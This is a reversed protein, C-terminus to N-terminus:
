KDDPASVSDHDIQIVLREAPEAAYRPELDHRARAVQELFATREFLNGIQRPPPECLIQGVPIRPRTLVGARTVFSTARSSSDAVVLASSTVFAESEDGEM